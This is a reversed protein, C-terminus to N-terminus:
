KWALNRESLEMPIETKEKEIDYIMKYADNGTNVYYNRLISNAKFGLSKYFLLATLNTEDVELVIEKRRQQSLKDKLKQIMYSGIGQRQYELHVVLSLIRLKSKHLEYLMFGIIKNEYEVVMGICNGQRLLILVDEETWIDDFHSNYIDIIEPLDRRIMWRIQVNLKCNKEM